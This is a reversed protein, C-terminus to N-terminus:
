PFQELKVGGCLQANQSRRGSILQFCQPTIPFRLVRNPDIFLPSDTKNPTIAM